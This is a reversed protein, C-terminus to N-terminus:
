SGQKATSWRQRITENLPHGLSAALKADGGYIDDWFYLLGTTGDVLATTYIIFVPIPRKVQVRTPGGEGMARQIAPRDWEPQDELVWDALGVPDAVRICGHSFDRRTRAFLSKAPTSHLYVNHENPFIFKVLGLSNDPGPRQRLHLRGDKVSAINEPTAPLPVANHGFKRVIELGNKELYAPSLGASMEDRVISRPINWYPRFDLYQLRGSFIPTRYRHFQKGVVVKSTFTPMFGDGSPSLGRMMYAPVNVVIPTGEPADPLWRWHELSIVIQAVRDTWPVNLQDFTQKGMIGDVRLGHRHQFLKIAEVTEGEYISDSLTDDAPRDGTLLLRTQLLNVDPYEDGPRVVTSAHLPVWSGERALKRYRALEGILLWYGEHGPARAELAEAPDDAELVKLLEAALDLKRHSIELALDLQEPSFRGQHLDKIYRLASYSIALETLATQEATSRTQYNALLAPDIPGILYDGPRLGHEAARGLEGLAAGARETLGHDGFWLPQYNRSAYLRRLHGSLLDYDRMQELVQPPQGQLYREIDTAVTNDEGAVAAGIGLACLLALSIMRQSM